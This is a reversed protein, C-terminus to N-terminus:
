LISTFDHIINESLLFCGMDYTPIAKGVSKLYVARGGYSLTHKIWERVISSLKDHLFGFATSRNRGIVLLMGFYISSRAYNVKQGSAGQACIVFLFPSLPDGQRLDCQPQFGATLGGNIQIRYSVSTVCSMILAVWSPAFGLRLLIRQLFIWEVRDYTKAMDLELTAGRKPNLNGM